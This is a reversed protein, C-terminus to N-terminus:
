DLNEWDPKHIQFVDMMKGSYDIQKKFSMGNKLAIIKSNKNEPHIISILRDHFNNEFAFDRCKKAAEIAFGKGRFKPLISYAVELEFKNEVERVLLGCQGVLQNTEKSILVNQGGLNSEYRHFTWEFWKESREKPTKFDDMGLMKATHEDEFLELWIEFDSHQLKQFTLRESQQYTLLFNM